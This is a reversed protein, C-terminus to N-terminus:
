GDFGTRKFLKRLLGDEIFLVAPRGHPCVNRRPITQLGEIISEMEEHTLRQGFKVAARCAMTHLAREQREARSGEHRLEGILDKVLVEADNMDLGAPLSRVVFTTPGFPEMEFGLCSLSDGEEQLLLMDDQSLEITLPFLLPQSPTQKNQFAVLFEEFKLREHAAHQDILYLGDASEALIYSELVQGCVRLSGVGEMSVPIFSEQLNQNVGPLDHLGGAPQPTQSSSTPAPQSAAENDAVIRLPKRNIPEVTSPPNAPANAGDAGNPSDPRTPAQEQRANERATPRAHPPHKTPPPSPTGMGPTPPAAPVNAKAPNPWDIVQPRASQQPPASPASSSDQKPAPDAPQPNQPAHAKGGLKEFISGTEQQAEERKDWADRIVGYTASFLADEHSFKIEQKTPHVNVDLEHPDLDLFLFVVPYRGHPLLNRYGNMVARHLLRDKIYRDNVFFFLHQAGNRTLTPRSIFGSISVVPSDFQVPILEPIMDEGFIQKIRESRSNVCPLDISRRGNHTFTFHIDEHALAHMNVATIVHSTETTPKKLFKRRAPTNFFLESVTVTTGVATGTEEPASTRGGEIAIRVGLEDEPRRTRLEFRSISSIAALAEGRFGKTRIRELDESSHIKSTAHRKVCLEADERSMGSGNDSVRISKLGGNQLDVDIRTAGADIANDVLERVVSAPREVVEGAAIQNAIEDPLIHIM